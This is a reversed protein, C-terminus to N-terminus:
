CIMSGRTITTVRELLGRVGVGGGGGRGRQSDGRESKAEQSAEDLDDQQDETLYPAFIEKVLDEPIRYRDELSGPSAEMYAHQKVGEPHRGDKVHECPPSPARSRTPPLAAVLFARSM